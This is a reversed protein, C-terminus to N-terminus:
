HKDFLSKEMWGDNTLVLRVKGHNNELDKFVRPYSARLKESKAWEALDTSEYSFNVQSSTVNSFQEVGPETFNDISTLKRKGTCFKDGFSEKVLYQKGLETAQYETAPLMRNGFDAKIETDRASLLGADVFADAKEREEKLISFQSDTKTIVESPVSLCFATQTDLYAQVAKSFNAKNADKPSGCATVTFAAVSAVAIKMFKNM